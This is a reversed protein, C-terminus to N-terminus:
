PAVDPVCVLAWAVGASSDVDTWTLTGDPVQGPVVCNAGAAASDGQDGKDGKEGPEGQDGQDGKDGKLSALWQSQTGTFGGVDVAIQYASSGTIAQIFQNATKNANGSFTRWEDYASWGDDGVDGKEGNLSAIWDTQSLTSDSLQYASLGDLGDNGNIGDLGDNGDLGDLGDIGDLGDVGNTGDIGDIGNQGDQGDQGDEGNL